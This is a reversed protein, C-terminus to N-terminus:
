QRKNDEDFEMAVQDVLGPHRWLDGEQVEFTDWLAEFSEKYAENTQDHRQIYTVIMKLLQVLSYVRQAHEEQGCVANSVAELLRVPNRQTKMEDYSQLQKIKGEPSSHVHGMHHHFM